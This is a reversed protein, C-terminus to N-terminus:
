SAAPVAGTAPAVPPPPSQELSSTRTLSIGTTEPAWIYTVFLGIACIAAGILMSPGVGLHAIGLPLLFTGGAAGLRSFAAAVGTGSARLHSPFLEAPYVALQGVRRQFQVVTVEGRGAAGVLVGASQRREGRM